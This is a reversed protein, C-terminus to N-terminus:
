PLKGQAVPRVRDQAQQARQIYARYPTLQYEEILQEVTLNPDLSALSVLDDDHHFTVQVRSGYKSQIQRMKAVHFDVEFVQKGLPLVAGAWAQYKGTSQIIDGTVDFISSVSRQSASVIFSQNLFALTRLQRAAPYASSYFILRAGKENLKRWQEHWNVDFCIQIGILGFDTQFVPPDVQGPSVKKLEDETPRIKDYRGVIKGTRDILVASNFTQEGVRLTLPCIVYCSHTRGWESLRLITPGDMPEAEGRTFTEPLCVIDPKFSAARDLLIVSADLRPKGPKYQLGDQSITVVRVLPNPAREARPRDDAWAATMTAFVLLLTTLNKMTDGKAPNGPAHTSSGPLAPAGCDSQNSYFESKEDCTWVPSVM